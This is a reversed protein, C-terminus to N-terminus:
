RGHRLLEEVQSLSPISTRGGPVTVSLAATAAAWRLTERDPLGRLVGYAFAGHFIDGAATTDVAQVAFAPLQEMADGTGYLMGREGRTIVVPNGNCAHLAAMARAQHEPSDLDPMGSLQRAFRESSVLFRVRKALEQTGERLSGADLISLATPFLRMAHLSAELEHGDFLLVRPAAHVASEASLQLSMAPRIAKRNVITRSGSHQNVLIVSLPTPHEPSRELLSVDTGVAQFEDIIRRGYADDGIAAALGCSVGWRSLLYAANAAPGGGCELMTRIECKSNELPFGDLFLNIDWCAHGVCLIDV